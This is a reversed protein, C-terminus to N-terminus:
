TEARDRRTRPAAIVVHEDALWWNVVNGFEAFDSFFREDNDRVCSEWGSAISKPQQHKPIIPKNDFLSRLFKKKLKPRKLKGWLSVTMLMNVFVVAGLIEYGSM